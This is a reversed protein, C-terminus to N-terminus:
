TRTSRWATASTTSPVSPPLTFVSQTADNRWAENVELSLLVYERDTSVGIESRLQRNIAALFVPSGWRGRESLWRTMFECLSELDRKQGFYEREAGGGAEGPQPKDPEAGTAPHGGIVRSFGTGIPDVFVLDTFALWSEANVVLQPPVRPLRGDATFRLRMPGAAGMHLFASSAGPGGNFVFTVPRDGPDAAAYSVSFLEAALKEKKRLVTWGAGATYDISRGAGTWTGATQAGQPPAHEAAGPTTTDAADPGPM